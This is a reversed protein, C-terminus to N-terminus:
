RMRACRKPTNVARGEGPLHAEKVVRHGERRPTVVPAHADPLVVGLGDVVLCAPREVGVQAARIVRGHLKFGTKVLQGITAPDKDADEYEFLAEHLNPDFAEDVEGFEVLGNSAFAKVLQNRTLEVGEVMKEVTLEKDDSAAALAYSLSDSVDLLSKAFSQAAFDKANKVDRRAITRTNEQEAIARLLQNKLDDREELAKAPPSPALVEAAMAKVREDRRAICQMVVDFHQGELELASPGFGGLSGQIQVMRELAGLARAGLM